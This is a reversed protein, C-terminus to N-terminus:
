AVTMKQDDSPLPTLQHEIAVMVSHINGFRSQFQKGDPTLVNAEILWPRVVTWEHKSVGYQQVNFWNGSPFNVALLRDGGPLSDSQSRNLEARHARDRPPLIPM